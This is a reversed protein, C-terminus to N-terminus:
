KKGNEVESDKHEKDQHGHEDGDVHAHDKDDAHDNETDEHDEHDGHDKEGEKHEHKADEAAYAQSIYATGGFAIGVLAAAMILKKTKM